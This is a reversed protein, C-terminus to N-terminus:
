NQKNYLKRKQVSATKKEEEKTNKKKKKQATLDCLDHTFNVYVKVRGRM